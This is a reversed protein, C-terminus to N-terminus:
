EANIIQLKKIITMRVPILQYRMITRIKMKIKEHAQQGMDAM